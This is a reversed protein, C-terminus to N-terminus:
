FGGRRAATAITEAVLENTAAVLSDVEEAWGRAREQDQLSTGNIKVNLAAIEAAARAMIGGATADTVANLNGAAAIQHTLQAVDRAMRVVRLPVEGAEVTAAEVAAARADGALEKDRYAALVGDFAEADAVIAGTLTQRLAASERQVREAEAAVDAYKKRGLTLGAVMEALAAGLAGALAAVAGGGPTPTGAATADLFDHPVMGTIGEQEEAEVQALRLEFIQDDAVDELQLYWKASDLLAHQPTLGILEAREVVLGRREAEVRVLEQVRHVPTEEFNLLNMSVQAKGEVLFGLAQVNQLGGSSARIARAIEKAPTVDSSNLYINYAILFPRAGIVTAGTTRAEAPGFDPVREPRVGVEERWKEYQGRRIDGLKVREPRTAAAAYLYVPIGLEEGVRQGLRRALDVCHDLSVGRVPVFPCVDTAGIRPHEGEHEDMNILEAATAIAQFAAELVADPDGAFTIVSRNHDPDASVNLVRAGHVGRIADAIATYVEPRRGDSFNPVCEVLPQM